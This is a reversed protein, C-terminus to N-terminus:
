TSALIAPSRVRPLARPFVFLNSHTFASDHGYHFPRIMGRPVDSRQSLCYVVSGQICFRHKSRVPYVFDTSSHRKCNRCSLRYVHQRDRLHRACLLHVVHSRRRQQDMRRPVQSVAPQQRLLRTRLQVQVIHLGLPSANSFEISRRSFLTVLLHRHPPARVIPANLPDTTHSPTQPALLAHRPREARVTRELQATVATVIGM